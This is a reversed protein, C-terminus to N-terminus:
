FYFGFGVKVGFKTYRKWSSLSLDTYVAPEITVTKSLFFAYGVEAGLSFYDDKWGDFSYHKYKAGLGFYIGVDDLYYRGGVGLTTTKTTNKGYDGGVTLLLATNDLIFAGGSAELGFHVKNNENYSLDLGTLSPNVFWTNKEFQAYIGTTCLLLLLSTVIKKM